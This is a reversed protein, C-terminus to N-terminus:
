SITPTVYDGAGSVFVCVGNTRDAGIGVGYMFAMVAFLEPASVWNGPMIRYGFGYVNMTRVRLPNRPDVLGYPRYAGYYNTPVRHTFKVRMLGYDT